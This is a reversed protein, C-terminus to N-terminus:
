PQPPFEMELEYGKLERIKSIRDALEDAQSARFLTLRLSIKSPGKQRLEIKTAYGTCQSRLSALLGPPLQPAEPAQARSIPTMERASVPLIPTFTRNSDNNIDSGAPVEIRAPPESIAAPPEVTPNPIQIAAPRPAQGSPAYDMPASPRVPEDPPLILGSKLAPDPLPLVPPTLSAVDDVDM